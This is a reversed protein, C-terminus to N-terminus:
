SWPSYKLHAPSPKACRDSEVTMLGLDQISSSPLTQGLAKELVDWLNEIPNLDPSQPPWDMHSFSTEHERFWEKVIQARHIRANDDQFIGTGDPFFFDMSLIVQENLIKLYDASRMRQACGTASGPGSWRVLGLDSCQGGLSTCHVSPM